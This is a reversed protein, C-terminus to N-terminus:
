PNFCPRDTFRLLYGERSYGSWSFINVSWRKCKRFLCGEAFAELNGQLARIRNHVGVDYALCCQRGQGQQLEATGYAEMQYDLITLNAQVGATGRAFGLNVSIGASGFATVIAYPSFRAEAKIPALQGYLKYCAGVEANYGIELRVPVPGITFTKTLSKRDRLPGINPKDGGYRCQSAYTISLNQSYPGQEWVTRGFFKLYAWADAQVNLAQALAYAEAITYNLSFFNVVAQARAEAKAGTCTICIDYHGEVTLNIDSGGLRVDKGNRSGWLCQSIGGQDGTGTGGGGGGGTGDSGGGTGNDGGCGGSAPAFQGGPANWERVMRELEARSMQLPDGYYLVWPASGRGVVPYPWLGEHALDLEAAQRELSSVPEQPWDADWGAATGFNGCSAGFNFLVLLLDSDSVIGDGDVDSCVNLGGAGFSLLVALLDADDVLGDYNTDGPPVCPVPLIVAQTDAGLPLGFMPSNTELGIVRGNGSLNPRAAPLNSDWCRAPIPLLWQRTRDFVYVRQVPVRMGPALNTATSSFAVYRGDGSISPSACAGNAKVGSSSVSVVALSINNWNLLDAVYVDPTADRDQPVANTARSVFAVFRGDDSISPDESAGNLQTGRATIRVVANTLLDYVFIDSVGNTDNPVWNNAESEFAVYRGNASISVSLAPGNAQGNPPDLRRITNTVRDFVFVDPQGNTDGQVLNTAESIFAVYRGDGSISPSHSAGNGGRSVWIVQNTQLDYLFVDPQGNTDNPVLNSAYSVFAVWRGDRSVRPMFSHGNPQVNNVGMLRRLPNNPTFVFIDMSNNTDNPVLNTATSAFVAVNGDRNLWVEGSVSGTNQPGSGLIPAGVTIPRARQLDLDGFLVDYYGNNDNPAWPLVQNGIREIVGYAYRKGSESVINHTGIVGPPVVGGERRTGWFDYSIVEEACTDLNRRRLSDSSSSLSFTSYYLYRGHLKLGIAPRPVTHYPVFFERFRKVLQTVFTGNVKRPVAIHEGDRTVFRAWILANAEETDRPAQAVVRVANRAVDIRVVRALGATLSDVFVLAYRGDKSIGLSVIRAFKERGIQNDFVHGDTLLVRSTNQQTDYLVAVYGEAASRPVRTYLVHRGDGSISPFAASLIVDSIRSICRWVGDPTRLYVKPYDASAPVSSDLNTAASQYVIYRGDDSMDAVPVLIIRFGGGPCQGIPDGNPEGGGPPITVREIFGRDLHALYLDPCNTSNGVDNPVFNNAWSFILLKNGDPSLTVPYSNQNGTIFQASSIVTPQANIASLILATAAAVVVMRQTRM